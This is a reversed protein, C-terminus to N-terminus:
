ILIEEEFAHSPTVNLVHLSVLLTSSQPDVSSSFDWEEINKPLTCVSSTGFDHDVPGRQLQDGVSLCFRLQPAASSGEVFKVEVSGLGRSKRFCAQGKRSGVRKAKLMIKVCAQKSIQFSPSIIHQEMSSLKKADVRWNILCAGSEVQAQQANCQAHAGVELLPQYVDVKQDPAEENLVEQLCDEVSWEKTLSHVIRPFQLMEDEDSSVSPARRPSGLNPTPVATSALSISDWHGPPRLPQRASPLMNVCPPWVPQQAFLPQLDHRLFELPPEFVPHFGLQQQQLDFNGPLPPFSTAKTSFIGPPRQPVSGARGPPPELNALHGLGPPAEFKALHELGPPPSIPALDM